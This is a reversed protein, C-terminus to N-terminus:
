EMGGIRLRVLRAANRLGHNTPQKEAASELLEAAEVLGDRRGQAHGRHYQTENGRSLSQFEQTPTVGCGGGDMVAQVALCNLILATASLRESTTPQQM